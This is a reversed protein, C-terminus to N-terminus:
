KGLLAENIENENGQMWGLVAAAAELVALDRNREPSFTAIVIEVVTEVADLDLYEALHKDFRVAAGAETTLEEFEDTEKVLISKCCRILVNAALNLSDKGRRNLGNLLKEAEQSPIADYRVGLLGDYGPVVLDITTEGRLEERQARVRDRLSGAGVDLDVQEAYDPVEDSM